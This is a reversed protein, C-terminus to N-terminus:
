SNNSEHISHTEVFAKSITAALLLERWFTRIVIHIMFYMFDERFDRFAEKLAWSEFKKFKFIQITIRTKSSSDGDSVNKKIRM